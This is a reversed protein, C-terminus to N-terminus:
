FAFDEEHLHRRPLGCDALAARVASALGTAACLYVDRQAVDPVWRHLNVATMQLAPDSSRGVLWVIRAGRRHAIDELERRFVVDTPRSARYLLTLAGPAVDISEFMARMPTIGVGGAVLLVRDRTRRRATM